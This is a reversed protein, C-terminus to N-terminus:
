GWARAAVNFATDTSPPKRRRRKLETVTSRTTPPNEIFGLKMQTLVHDNRIKSAPAAFTQGREWVFREERERGIPHALHKRRSRTPRISRLLKGDVRPRSNRVKPEDIRQRLREFRELELLFPPREPSAHPRRHQELAATRPPQAPNSVATPVCNTGDCRLSLTRRLRTTPGHVTRIGRLPGPRPNTFPASLKQFTASLSPNSGETRNGTCM